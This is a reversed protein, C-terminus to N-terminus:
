AWHLVLQHDLSQTEGPEVLDNLAGVRGAIRPMTAFTGWRTSITCYTVVYLM